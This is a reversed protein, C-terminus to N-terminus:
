PKSWPEPDLVGRLEAVLQRKAINRAITDACTIPEGLQVASVGRLQRIADAIMDADDDRMDDELVVTMMRVRDTM